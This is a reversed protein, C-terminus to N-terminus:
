MEDLRVTLSKATFPPMSVTSILRGDEGEFTLGAYAYAAEFLALAIRTNLVPSFAATVVEAVLNKKYFIKDGPVLRSDKNETVAGIIKRSTGQERRALLADRGRFGEENEFDAMWQLGLPLPDKVAAGEEHINFFRGDLRLAMHTDFGVPKLGYKEGVAEIKLWLREAFEAPVLLLYGFESTKGARILKVEIDDAVYTEISMYPLGLVDPGFLEKVVAWANFGDLGFLAHTESMDEPASDDDSLQVLTNKVTEDSVISEGLLILKDDDNAIYLENELMGNEDLAMTHLIRGFRINAVSGAAYREFVDLGEEPVCFKTTFSFDTLGVAERVATYEEEFSFFGCPIERGSIERFTAGRAALLSRIPSTRM